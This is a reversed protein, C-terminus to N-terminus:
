CPASRDDSIAADTSLEASDLAGIEIHCTTISFFEDGHELMREFYEEGIEADPSPDDDFENDWWHQALSLRWNLAQDRDLFVRMDTGHRHEYIAVHVTLPTFQSPASENDTPM